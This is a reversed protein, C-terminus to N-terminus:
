KEAKMKELQLYKRQLEQELIEIERLLNDVHPGTCEAYIFVNKGYEKFLRGQKAELYEMQLRIETIDKAWKLDDGLEDWVKSIKSSVLEKYHNLKNVEM